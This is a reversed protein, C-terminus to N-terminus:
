VKEKLNKGFLGKPKVLLVLILIAFAVGDKYMSCGLASVLTETMGLFFGGFMAGPIIGIGGIVAAIFAKLGPVIGM